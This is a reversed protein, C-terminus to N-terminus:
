QYVICSGTLRTNTERNVLSNVVLADCGRKGAEERLSAIMDETSQPGFPHAELLEVDTHPRAPAGSTFVEVQDPSRAAM